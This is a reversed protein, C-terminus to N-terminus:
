EVRANTVVRWAVERAREVARDTMVGHRSFLRTLDEQLLQLAPDPKPDEYQALPRLQPVKECRDFPHPPQPINKVPFIGAGLGFFDVEALIDCEDPGGTPGRDPSLTWKVSEVFPDAIFQHTEADGRAIQVESFAIRETQFLIDGAAGKIAAPIVVENSGFVHQFSEEEVIYRRLSDQVVSGSLSPTATKLSKVLAIVEMAMQNVAVRLSARWTGTALLSGYSAVVAATPTFFQMLMSSDVEVSRGHSLTAMRWHQLVRDFVVLISNSILDELEVFLSLTERHVSAEFHPSSIHHGVRGVFNSLATQIAVESSAVQRAVDRRSAARAEEYNM